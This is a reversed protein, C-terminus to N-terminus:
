SRINNDQHRNYVGYNPWRFLNYGRNLHLKLIRGKVIRASGGRAQVERDFSRVRGRNSVQYSNEYDEVDKWREVTM